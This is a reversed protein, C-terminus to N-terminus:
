SCDASYIRCNKFFLFFNFANLKLFHAAYCFLAKFQDLNRSKLESLESSCFWSFCGLYKSKITKRSRDYEIVPRFIDFWKQYVLFIFRFRRNFINLLKSPSKRRFGTTLMRPALLFSFLSSSSWRVWFSRFWLSTLKTIM